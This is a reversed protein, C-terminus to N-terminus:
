ISYIVKEHSCQMYFGDHSGVHRGCLIDEVGKLFLEIFDVTCVLNEDAHQCRDGLILRLVGFADCLKDLLADLLYAMCVAHISAKTALLQESGVICAQMIMVLKAITV